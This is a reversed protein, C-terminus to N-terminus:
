HWGIYPENPILGVLSLSASDTLEGGSGPFRVGLTPDSILM